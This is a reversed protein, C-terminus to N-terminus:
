EARLATAPQIRFARRLAPVVALLAAAGIVAAAAVLARPENAATQYTVDTLFPMLSFAGLLGVVVGLAVPETAEAIVLRRVCAPSAGLAIRLGIERTRQSVAFSVLGYLGAGTTLLATVALLSALLEYYRAPAFAGEYLDAVDGSRRVECGPDVAKVLAPLAALVSKSGDSTRILLDAPRNDRHRLALWGQLSVAGPTTFNSTRVNGAVGVVTIWDGAQQRFRQGVSSRGPWFHRATAQSIIALPPGVTDDPHFMRGEVIPIGAITFYDPPVSTLAVLTDDKPSAEASVRSSFYGSAPNSGLTAAQVGPLTKVRRLIDELVANQPRASRGTTTTIHAFALHDVKFGMDARVIRIFSALLVALGAVLVLTLAVQVAQLARTVTRRDRTAGVVFQGGRLSRALVRATRLAPAAACVAGASLTVLVAFALVRFDLQPTHAAFLWRVSFPALIPLAGVIWEAVLTAALGSMSALVLGEILFQRVLRGRTAGLSARIGVEQERTLTRYLFLSAV